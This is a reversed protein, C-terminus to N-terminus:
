AFQVDVQEFFGGFVGGLSTIEKTSHRTAEIILKRSQPLAIINGDIVLYLLHLLAGKHLRYRGL